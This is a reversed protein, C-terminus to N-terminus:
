PALDLEEPTVKRSLEYFVHFDGIAKEKFNVGLATFRSRIRADLPPHNTTVYAARDSAAVVATYPAYRDDRPTYRFDLHYPLAASYILKEGSLFAMPFAAWYNTYGRTEGRSILFGMVAPLDRQDIQAVEDFQTTFGPPFTLTADLNGWLNFLLLGGLLALAIRPYEKRVRSLLDATFLAVPAALPLFYRGSPDAGFPTFVFAAILTICVGILLSGYRRSKRDGESGRFAVVVARGVAGFFIAMALPALPLALWRVAWPPRLGIIVPLGLVILNFLHFAAGALPSSSTAGAIASGALESVTAAGGFITAWWWPSSGFAFGAFAFIINVAFARLDRLSILYSFKAGKAFRGERTFLPLALAVGIPVLYVALLGFAWFGFGALAGFAAWEGYSGRQTANAISRTEGAGGERLRMAWLLLM